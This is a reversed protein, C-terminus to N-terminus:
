GEPIRTSGEGFYAQIYSLGVMFYSALFCIGHPFLKKKGDM